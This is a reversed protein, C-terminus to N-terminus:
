LFNWVYLTFVICCHLLLQRLFCLAASSLTFFVRQLNLFTLSIMRHPLICLSFLIFICYIQGLNMCLLAWSHCLIKDQFKCCLVPLIEFNFLLYNSILNYNIAVVCHRANCNAILILNIKLTKEVFIEVWFSVLRQSRLLM